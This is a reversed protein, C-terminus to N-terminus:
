SATRGFAPGPRPPADALEGRLDTGSTEPLLSVAVFALAYGTLACIGMAYGLPLSQSLYGVATPVVSGIGRGGSLCFGQASGRIRTPFLEAFAPIMGAALGAQLGGQFFALLLTLHPGIPAMTFTGM